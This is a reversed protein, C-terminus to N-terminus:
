FPFQFVKKVKTWLLNLLNICFIGVFVSVFDFLGTTVFIETITSWVLGNIKRFQLSGTETQLPNMCPQNLPGRGSNNQRNSESFYYQSFLCNRGNLVSSIDEQGLTNHVSIVASSVAWLTGQAKLRSTVYVVFILNQSSVKLAIHKEHNCFSRSLTTGREFLPLM